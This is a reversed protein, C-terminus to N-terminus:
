AAAVALCPWCGLVGLVTRGREFGAAGCRGTFSPNPHAPDGSFGESLGGAGSFGLFQYRTYPALSFTRVQLAVGACYHFSTVLCPSRHQWPCPAALTPPVPPRQLAAQLCGAARLLGAAPGGVWDVGNSAGASGDLRGHNAVCLTMASDQCFSLEWITDPSNCQYAGCGEVRVRYCGNSPDLGAYRRASRAAPDSRAQGLATGRGRAGGREGSAPLLCSRPARRSRSM